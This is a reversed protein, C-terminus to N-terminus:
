KYELISNFSAIAANVIAEDTHAGIRGYGLIKDRCSPSVKKVRTSNPISYVPVAFVTVILFLVSVNVSLFLLISRNIIM